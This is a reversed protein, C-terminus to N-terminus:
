APTPSGCFILVHFISLSANLRRVSWLLAAYLALLAIVAGPAGWAM